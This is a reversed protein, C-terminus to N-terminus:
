STDPAQPIVPGFPTADFRLRTPPPRRKAAVNAVWRWRRPSYAFRVANRLTRRNIENSEQKGRCNAYGLGCPTGRWSAHLAVTPSLPFSIEADRHDLGIGTHLFVPNDCTILQGRNSVDLVIWQMCYIAMAVRGTSHMSKVLPDKESIRDSHVESGLYELAGIIEGAPVGLQKVLNQLNSMTESKLNAFVEPLFAIRNRRANPGRSMMSYIYAAVAAREDPSLTGRKRLVNLPKQAPAEVRMALRREDEPFYYDKAQAVIKIPLPQRSFEFEELGFQWIKAQGLETSFHRLYEQPIFHHGM